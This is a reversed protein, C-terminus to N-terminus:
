CLAVFGFGFRKPPRNARVRNRCIVCTLGLLMVKAPCFTPVVLAACLACSLLRPVLGSRIELTVAVPFKECVFLQAADSGAAPLQLTVTAKAGEALPKREPVRFM